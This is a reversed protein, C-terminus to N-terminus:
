AEWNAARWVNETGINKQRLYTAFKNKELNM